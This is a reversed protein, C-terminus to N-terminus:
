GYDGTALTIGVVAKGSGPIGACVKFATKATDTIELVFEGNADTQVRLAKKTTLTGMVTGGGSKATVTGSASTGTLGEGAADDSLWVDFVLPEAIANGSADKAAITVESVNAAGAAATMTFDAIEAPVAGDGQAGFLRVNGLTDDAGSGVDAAAIGMPLNGEAVTTARSNGTDWYVKQGHTWAQSGVKTVQYTGVLNLIGSEGDAIDGAAIGITDQTVVVDGSSVDSGTGNTWNLTNGQSIFTKM